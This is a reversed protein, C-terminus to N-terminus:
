GHDEPPPLVRRRQRICAQSEEIFRALVERGARTGFIINSQSSIANEHQQFLPCQEIVYAPSQLPNRGCKCDQPDLARPWHRSEKWSNRPTSPHLARYAPSRRLDDLWVQEWDAIVKRRVIDRLASGAARM